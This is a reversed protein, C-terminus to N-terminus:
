MLSAGQALAMEPDIAGEQRITHFAHGGVYVAAILGYDGLRQFRAELATTLEHAQALGPLVVTTGCCQALIRSGEAGLPQRLTARIHAEDDSTACLSPDVTVVVFAEDSSRSVHAVFDTATFSRM